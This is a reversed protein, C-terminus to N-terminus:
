IFKTTNLSKAQFSNKSVDSRSAKRFLTILLSFFSSFANLMSRELPTPRDSFPFVSLCKPDVLTLRAAGCLPSIFFLFM